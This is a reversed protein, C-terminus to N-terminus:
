YGNRFYLGWDMNQAPLLTLQTKIHDPIPEHCKDCAFINSIAVLKNCHYLYYHNFGNSTKVYKIVWNNELITRGINM